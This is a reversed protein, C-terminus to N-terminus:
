ENGWEEIASAIKKEKVEETSKKSARKKPEEEVVVAEEEDDPEDSREVKAAPKEGDDEGSDVQYVTLKTYMATEPRKQAELVMAYEDDTIERVPTFLLEMSDANDDFSINTVVLDPSTGNNALFKVYSEFPHVNGHGKGFLSKAPVNFQYVAGSNDGELMIAIRRQFRCARGGGEGSGKVNMPCSACNSAQPDSANEDPATGDNSWCNPATPKENPDYKGKYYVRSVPVLMDVVIANFEGRIVNGVQEGNVIKKFTGNINAQIRRRTIGSSSIKKSLATERKTTSVVSQNTFISVENSM